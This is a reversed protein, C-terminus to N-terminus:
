DIKLLLFNVYLMPVRFIYVVFILRLLNRLPGAPQLAIYIYCCMYTAEAKDVMIGPITKHATTAYMCYM